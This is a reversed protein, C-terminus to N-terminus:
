FVTSDMKLICTDVTFGIFHISWKIICKIEDFIREFANIIIINILKLYIHLLQKNLKHINVRTKKMQMSLSLKKEDESSLDIVLEDPNAPKSDEYTFIEEKGEKKM